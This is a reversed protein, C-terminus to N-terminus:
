FWYGYMSFDNSDGKKGMIISVKLKLLNDDIHRFTGFQSFLSVLQVQTDLLAGLSHISKKKRWLCVCLAKLYRIEVIYAVLIFWKVLFLFIVALDFMLLICPATQTLMGWCQCGFCAAHINTLHSFFVEYHRLVYVFFYGVLWLHTHKCIYIFYDM